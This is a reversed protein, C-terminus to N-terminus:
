ESPEHDDWDYAEVEAASLPRRHSQQYADVANQLWDPRWGDTTPSAVSKVYVTGLLFGLAFAHGIFYMIALGMWAELM